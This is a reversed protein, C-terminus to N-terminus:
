TIVIRPPSNGARDAYIGNWCVSYYRYPVDVASAIKYQQTPTGAPDLTFQLLPGPDNGSTDTLFDDKNPITVDFEADVAVFEITDGYDVERIFPHVYERDFKSKELYIRKIAAM